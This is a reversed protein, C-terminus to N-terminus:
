TLPAGQAARRRRRLLMRLTHVTQTVYLTHPIGCGSQTSEVTVSDKNSTNDRNAM